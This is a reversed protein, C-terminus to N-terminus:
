NDHMDGKTYIKKVSLKNPNGETSSITTSLMNSEKKLAILDLIDQATIVVDTNLLSNMMRELFLGDQDTLLPDCSNALM